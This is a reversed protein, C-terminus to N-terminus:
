VRWTACALSSPVLVILALPLSVGFLGISLTAAMVIV